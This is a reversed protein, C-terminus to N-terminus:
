KSRQLCAFHTTCEIITTESTLQSKERTRAKERDDEKRERERESYKRKLRIKRSMVFVLLLSINTMEGKFYFREWAARLPFSKDRYVVSVM